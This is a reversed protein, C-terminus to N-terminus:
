AAFVSAIALGIPHGVFYATVTLMIHEYLHFGEIYVAWRVWKSRACYDLSALWSCFHPPGRYRGVLSRRAPVIGEIAEIKQGL